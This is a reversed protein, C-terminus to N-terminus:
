KKNKKNQKAKLIVFAGFGGVIGGVIGGIAGAPLGGKNEGNQPKDADKLDYKGTYGTVKFSNVVNKYKDTDATELKYTTVTIVYNYKGSYVLYQRFFIDKEDYKAHSEIYICRYNNPTFTQIEAKDVELNYEKFQQTLSIKAAEIEEQTFYDRGEVAKNMEININGDKDASNLVLAENLTSQKFGEGEEVSYFENSYAYASASLVVMTIILAIISILRKIM